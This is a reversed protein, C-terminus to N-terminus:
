QVKRANTHTTCLKNCLLNVTAGDRPSEFVTSSSKRRSFVWLLPRYKKKRVRYILGRKGRKSGKKGRGKKAKRGRWRDGGGTKGLTVSTQPLPRVRLGRHTIQPIQPTVQLLFAVSKPNPTHRKTVKLCM